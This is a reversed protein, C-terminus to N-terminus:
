IDLDATGMVAAMPDYIQAVVASDLVKNDSDQFTIFTRSGVQEILLRYETKDLPLADTEGWIGDWWGADSGTYNVLLLGNSKDLDKVNFGMKRLVLLLRNWAIDYEAAVAFASDGAENATLEMELGQQIKRLRRVDAIRIQEAYHSIVSNLIAIEHHRASAEDLDAIVREDVTELYDRLVVRLAASRGHPKMTLAFEFRKGVKHEINNWSYWSSDVENDIM